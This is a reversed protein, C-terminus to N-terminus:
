VHVVLVEQDQRQQRVAGTDALLAPRGDTRLHETVRSSAIEGFTVFRGQLASVTQVFPESLRALALSLAGLANTHSVADTNAPVINLNFGNTVPLYSGEAAAPAAHPTASDPTAVSPAVGLEIDTRTIRSERAQAASGDVALRAPDVAIRAVNVDTDLPRSHGKALNIGSETVENLAAQIAPKSLLTTLSVLNATASQRAALLSQELASRETPSALFYRTFDGRIVSVQQSPADFGAINLHDPQFNLMIAQKPNASVVNLEDVRLTTSLGLNEMTSYIVGNSFHGVELLTKNSSSSGDGQQLLVITPTTDIKIRGVDQAALMYGISIRGADVQKIDSLWLSTVSHDGLLTVSEFSSIQLNVVSEPLRSLDITLNGQGSGTIKLVQNYPLLDISINSDSSQIGSEWGAEVTGSSPTDIAALMVRSELLELKPKHHFRRM